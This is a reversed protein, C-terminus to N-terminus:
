NDKQWRCTWSTVSITKQLKVKNKQVFKEDVFNRSIDSDLLIWVSKGNVQGNFKLLRERNDELILLNLERM